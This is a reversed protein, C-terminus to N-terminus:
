EGDTSDQFASSLVPHGVGGEEPTGQDLMASQLFRLASRFRRRVWYPPRQMGAAIANFSMCEVFREHIIRRMERPLQGLGFLLKETQERTIIVDAVSSQRQPAEAMLNVEARVNRRQAAHFACLKAAQRRAVFRSWYQSPSNEDDADGQLWAQLSAEQVVDSTDFRARYRPNITGHVSRRMIARLKELSQSFM